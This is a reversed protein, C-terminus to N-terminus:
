HRYNTFFRWKVLLQWSARGVVKITWRGLKYLIILAAIIHCLWWIFVWVGFMFGVQEDPSYNLGSIKHILEAIGFPVWAVLFFGGRV